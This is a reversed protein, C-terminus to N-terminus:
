SALHRCRGGGLAPYRLYGRSCLDVFRCRQCNEVSVAYLRLRGQRSPAENRDLRNCELAHLGPRAGVTEEAECPGAKGAPQPRQNGVPVQAALRTDEAENQTRQTAVPGLVNLVVDPLPEPAQLNVKAYVSNWVPGRQRLVCTGFIPEIGLADERARLVSLPKRNIIAGGPLCELSRDVLNKLVFKAESFDLCEVLLGAGVGGIAPLGHSAGEVDITGSLRDEAFHVYAAHGQAEEM